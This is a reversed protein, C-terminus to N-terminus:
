RKSEERGKVYLVDNKTPRKKRTYNLELVVWTGGLKEGKIRGELLLKRVRQGSIGMLHAARNVSWMLMIIAYGCYYSNIWESSSGILRM